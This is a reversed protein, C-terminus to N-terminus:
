LIAGQKKLLSRLAETDMSRPTVCSKLCLGAATGAAQGLAMCNPMIRMAGQGAHTASVCRGAVLLNEIEKPVLCRYPVEYWDGDPPAVTETREVDRTYGKGVGSHLDVPYASRLVADPFKRGEAVDEESFVYEGMVRRSERIGVQAATEALYANQFGPVRKGFFHLLEIVQRRGDIEADTLGESTLPDCGTIHTTNVVVRDPAPLTLFFVMEQDLTFEGLRRAEEVERYFGCIGQVTQMLGDIESEMIPKPFRMDEPHNAAYVFAERVNVGGLIFMLTMAQTAGSEENGMEFPAGAMAAVDADGTADIVVQAGVDVFGSKTLLTLGTITRETMRIGTVTTHLLLDVGSELVIEQAAFKLIEPNFSRGFMGGLSEMRKCIESYFGGVMSVMFPNVLGATGMGGLFGYKEVLLTRAGNRSACAAAAIGAV